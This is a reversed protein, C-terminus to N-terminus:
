LKIFKLMKEGEIVLTYIGQNFDSLDITYDLLNGNAVMKGMSDFISFRRGILHISPYITITNAAPNPAITTQDYAATKLQVTAFQAPVSTCAIYVRVQYDAAPRLQTLVVSTSSTQLSRWNTSGSISYDIFYPVGAFASEWSIEASTHTVHDISLNVPAFCTTNFDAEVFEKKGSCEPAVRVKCRTGPQLGNLTFSNTQTQASSLGRGDIEYTVSYNNTNSEDSWSVRASFPTVADLLLGSVKPCPTTFSTLLLDSAVDACMIRGRVFYKQAPNLPSIIQNSGVTNWNVNDASYELLANEASSSTWNVRASNFRIDNITISNLKPCLTTFKLYNFTAPTSCRGRYRVDYTTGNKLNTILNNAQQLTVWLGQQSPSYQVEMSSFNFAQVTAANSQINVISFSSVDICDTVFDKYIYETFGLYCKARIRLQYSGGYPLNFSNTTVEIWNSSGKLLYAVELQHLNVNAPINLTARNASVSVDVMAPDPCNPPANQWIEFNYGDRPGYYYSNVNMVEPRGDGNLDSVTLNTEAIGSNPPLKMGYEEFREFSTPSFPQRAVSNNKLLTFSRKDSGVLLDVKGDGNIDAPVVSSISYGSLPVIPPVMSVSTSTRKNELLTMNEDQRPQPYSLVDAWGDQNFDQLLYQPDRAKLLDEIRIEGFAFSGAVSENLLISAYNKNLSSVIIEPKGDNNLDNADLYFALQPLTASFSKIFSGADILGKPNQNRFITVTSTDTKSYKTVAIDVHGDIDFDKFTANWFGQIQPLDVPPGFFIYGPVSHNPYIRLGTTYIFAVDQRGNGDFDATYLYSPTNEINFINRVFSAETLDGAQHVNQFVSFGAYHSAIIDPKGDGDMDEVITQNIWADIGVTLQLDKKKFEASFTPVFKQASQGALGSEADLVTINALSAGAPVKVKIQTQTSSLVTARTAGFNVLNLGPVVQFNKGTIVVESGVIGAEPSFSFIQPPVATFFNATASATTAFGNTAVLKYFYKKRPVLNNVPISISLFETTDPLSHLPTFSGLSPTLGYEFHYSTALSNPNIRGFLTATHETVDVTQQLTVLPALSITTFETAYSSSGNENVAVLRLYYKTASQLGTITGTVADSYQYTASRSGYGPTPGYEFFYSVNNGRKFLNGKIKVTTATIDYPEM